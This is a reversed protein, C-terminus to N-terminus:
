LYIECLRIDLTPEELSTGNEANDNIPCASEYMRVDTAPGELNPEMDQLMM